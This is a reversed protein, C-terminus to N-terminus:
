KEVKEFEGLVITDYDIIGATVYFYGGISWVLIGEMEKNNYFFKVKDGECCPVGNKDQIYGGRCLRAEIEPLSDLFAMARNYDSNYAEHQGNWAPDINNTKAINIQKKIWDILEKTEQKM